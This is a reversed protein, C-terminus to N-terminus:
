RSVNTTATHAFHRADGSAVAHACKFFGPKPALSLVAAVDNQAAIFGESLEDHWVVFLKITAGQARDDALGIEADFLEACQKSRRSDHVVGAM